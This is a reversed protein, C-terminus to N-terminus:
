MLVQFPDKIQDNPCVQLQRIAGISKSDIDREVLAVDVIATFGLFDTKLASSAIAECISNVEFDSVDFNCLFLVGKSLFISLYM